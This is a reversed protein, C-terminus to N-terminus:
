SSPLGEIEIDVLPQSGGHVREFEEPTLPAGVVLVGGQQKQSSASPQKGYEERRRRELVWRVMKPDCFPKTEPIPDGNEDRLYCEEEPYGLQVLFWDKKYTVRGQYELVMQFTGTAMQFAVEEVKDFGAALADQYLIHYRETLDDELKIDFPDGAHGEKSAMYWYRLLNQSIGARYAIVSEVPTDAALKLVLRLREPKCKRKAYDLMAAKVSSGPKAKSAQSTRSGVSQCKPKNCREACGCNPWRPKNAAM